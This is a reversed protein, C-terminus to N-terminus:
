GTFHFALSSYMKYMGTDDGYPPNFQDKFMETRYFM